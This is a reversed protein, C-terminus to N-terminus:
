GYIIDDSLENENNDEDAPFYHQMQEGIQLVVACVGACAEDRHLYERLLKKEDDWFDFGVKEHIGADGWVAFHRSKWALYILVGNREKTNHMGFLAFLEAAREVPHDRMCFDEVYLRIEGSTMREATQIAQIIKLEEDKTFLM